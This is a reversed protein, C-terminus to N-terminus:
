DDDLAIRRDSYDHQDANVSHDNQTRMGTEPMLAAHFFPMTMSLSVSRWRLTTSADGAAAADRRGPREFRHPAMEPVRRLTPKKVM